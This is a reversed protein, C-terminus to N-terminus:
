CSDLVFGGSSLGGAIRFVVQHCFEQLYLGWFSMKSMVGQIQIYTISKPIPYDVFVEPITFMM